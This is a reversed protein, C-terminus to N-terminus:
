QNYFVFNEDSELDFLDDFIGPKRNLRDGGIQFPRHSAGGIAVDSQDVQVQAVPRCPRLDAGEQGGLVANAHNIDGGVRRLDPVRRDTSKANDGLREPRM